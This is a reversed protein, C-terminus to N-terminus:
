TLYIESLTRSEICFCTEIEWVICPESRFPASGLIGLTGLQARAADEDAGDAGGVAEVVEGTGSVVDLARSVTCTLSALTFIVSM